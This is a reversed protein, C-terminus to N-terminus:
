ASLPLLEEHEIEDFSWVLGDGRCEICLEVLEDVLAQMPDAGSGECRECIEMNNM